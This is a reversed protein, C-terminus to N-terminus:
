EIVKLINNYEESTIVFYVNDNTYENNTYDDHMISCKVLYNDALENIDFKESLVYSKLKNDFLNLITDKNIKYYTSEFFDKHTAVNESIDSTFLSIDGADADNDYYIKAIHTLNSDFLDMSLMFYTDYGKKVLEKIDTSENFISESNHANVFANLTNPMDKTLPISDTMTSGNESTTLTVYLRSSESHESANLYNCKSFEDKLNCYVDKNNEVSDFDLLTASQRNYEPLNSYITKIEDCKNLLNRLAIADDNSFYLRRYRTISGSRIGFEFYDETPQTNPKTNKIKDSVTKIVADNTIHCKSIKTSFYGTNHNSEGSLVVYKIDNIDPKYNIQAKYTLYCGGIIIVNLVLMLVISPISKIINRVKKTSIIEYLIMSIIAILYMVSIDFIISGSPESISDDTIYGFISSIGALSAPLAATIRIIAQFFPNIASIGSCESKRKNFFFCAAALYLIGVILLYMNSQITFFAQFPNLGFLPDCVTSYVLNWEPEAFPLFDNKVFISDSSAIIENIVMIIIRPLFIIFGSVAINSFITGTLSCALAIASCVMFSCIFNSAVFKILSLTDILLMESMGCMLITTLLSSILTIAVWTLVASFLSVFLCLRTHPISHYFDSANRKTLFSFVMLTLVPGIITFSFINFYTDIIEFNVPKSPANNVFFSIPALSAIIIMIITFLLGPVKLQRLTELYLKKSFITYAKKNNM